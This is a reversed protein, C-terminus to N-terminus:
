LKGMNIERDTHKEVQDLIISETLYVTLLMTYNIINSHQLKYMGTTIILRKETSMKQPSGDM